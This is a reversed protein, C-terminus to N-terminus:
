GGGAVRAAVTVPAGRAGNPDAGATVVITRSGASYAVGRARLQELLELNIAQQADLYLAYDPTPVHYVVEYELGADVARVFHAREFRLAPDRVREVAARVLRPIEAASEASTEPAVAFSFAIRRETQRKFNRIRSKLLDANSIILQEGGLARLRTTKLGIHEVTGVFQDVQISDGVVFPKDLVISLAGFLDGLINQVALAIAVGGVGLGTVLATVNVGLTGLAVLFIVVWLLGRALYGVASLTTATAGDPVGDQRQSYRALGFAVLESGWIAAQVALAVVMVNSFLDHVRSRLDLVHAASAFAVAFIAFFKTRRILRVALDDVGTSTRAAFRELRRVLLRRAAYVLVVFVALVALAALWRGLPNGYFEWRLPALNSM